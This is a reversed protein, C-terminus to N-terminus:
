STSCSGKLSVTAPEFGALRVFTFLLHVAEDASMQALRLWTSSLRPPTAFVQCIELMLSSIHKTIQSWLNFQLFVKLYIEQPKEEGGPAPHSDQGQIQSGEKVWIYSYSINKVLFIKNHFYYQVRNKKLMQMVICYEQYISYKRRNIKISFIAVNQFFIFHFVTCFYSSYCIPCSKSSYQPNCRLKVIYM